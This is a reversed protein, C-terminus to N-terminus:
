EENERRAGANLDHDGVERTGQSLSRLQRLRARARFPKLALLRGKVVYRYCAAAERLFVSTISVNALFYLEGYGEREPRLHQRRRVSRQM